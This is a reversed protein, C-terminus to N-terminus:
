EWAWEEEDWSSGSRVDKDLLGDENRVAMQHFQEDWGERPRRAARLVLQDGQVELEIDNKLGVQDLLVRPIRIGQSNGIKVLRTKITNSM